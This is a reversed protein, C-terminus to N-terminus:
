TESGTGGVPEPGQQEPEELRESVHRWLREFDRRMARIEQLVDIDSVGAEVAAGPDAVYDAADDPTGVGEVLLEPEGGALVTRWTGPKWGICLSIAEMTESSFSKRSGLVGGEIDGLTRLTIGAESALIGRDMGRALRASVVYDGLRQYARLQDDNDM